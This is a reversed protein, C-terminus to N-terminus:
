ICPRNLKSILKSPTSITTKFTPRKSNLIHLYHPKLKFQHDM